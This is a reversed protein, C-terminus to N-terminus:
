RWDHSWNGQALATEYQQIDTQCDAECWRGQVPVVGVPKAQQLLTRLCTTMDTNNLQDGLATCVTSLTDWGEASFSLLGMYQGHIDALSRPKGGIERLLGDKQCFTEADLLPDGFRLRWLSEWLDDCTIAIPHPSQLLAQVHDTHYVIDSYSVVVKQAGEAFAKRAFPDACLLTRLMNSQAWLANDITHFYTAWPLCEPQLMHGLYGRVVLINDIDAEHLAQMQWRLLPRGALELLCKPNQLTREQMRSGRGAALIIAAVSHKNTM